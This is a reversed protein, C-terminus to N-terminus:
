TQISNLAKLIAQELPQKRVLFDEAVQRSLEVATKQQQEKFGMEVQCSIDHALHWADMEVTLREIEKLARALKVKTKEKIPLGVPLASTVDWEVAMNSTIKCTRPPLEMIAGQKQLESFRKHCDSYRIMGSEKAIQELESQTCPGHFYLLEYVRLRSKSLTGSEVIKRYNDYSTQRM